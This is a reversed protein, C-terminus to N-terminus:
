PTEPKYYEYLKQGEWLAQMTPGIDQLRYGDLLGEDNTKLYAVILYVAEEMATKDRLPLHNPFIKLVREQSKNVVRRELIIREGFDELRLRADEFWLDFEFLQYFTEDIAGIEVPVMRKELTASVEITPDGEYPSDLVNDIRKVRISDDLLFSLTDIVHTGNHMWGAYYISRVRILRGFDFNAIRERIASYHPNFRRSHNVLIVTGCDSAMTLLTEYQQVSACAPKELFIVKPPHPSLLIARVIDYHTEDSTCVSVVAPEYLNLVSLLDSDSYCGYRDSFRSAQIEDKDVGASLIIQDHYHYCGGHTFSSNLDRGGGIAGCGVVVAKFMVIKM